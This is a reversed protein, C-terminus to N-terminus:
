NLDYGLNKLIKLMFLNNRFAAWHAVSCCNVDVVNMDAGNKLLYLMTSPHEENLTYLIATFQKDDLIELEAGQSLFFKVIGNLGFNCAIM